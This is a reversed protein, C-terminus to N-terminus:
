VASNGLQLCQELSRELSLYFLLLSTRSGPHVEFATYLLGLM